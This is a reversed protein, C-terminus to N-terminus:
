RALFGAQPTMSITIQWIGKRGGEGEEGRGGIQSMGERKETQTQPAEGVGGVDGGVGGGVGGGFCLSLSLSLRCKM